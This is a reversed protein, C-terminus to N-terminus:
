QVSEASSGGYFPVELTLNTWSKIAINLPNFCVHNGGNIKFKTTIQKIRDKPGHEDTIIEQENLGDLEQKLNHRLQFAM